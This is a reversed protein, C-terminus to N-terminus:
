KIMSNTTCCICITKNIKKYCDVHYVHNFKCKVYKVGKKINEYCVACDSIDNDIDSKIFIKAGNIYQNICSINKNINVNNLNNKVGGGFRIVEEYDLYMHVFM